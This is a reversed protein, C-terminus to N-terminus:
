NGYPIEFTEGTAVVRVFIVYTHRDCVRNNATCLSDLVCPFPPVPAWPSSPTYSEYADCLVGSERNMNSMRNSRSLLQCFHAIVILNFVRSETVSHFYHESWHTILMWLSISQSLQSPELITCSCIHKFTFLFLFSENRM